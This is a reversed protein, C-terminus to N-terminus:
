PTSGGPRIDCGTLGNRAPDPLSCRQPRTCSTSGSRPVCRRAWARGQRGVGSLRGIRRGAKESQRQAANLVTPTKNADLLFVEGDREVYDFKGFDFGLREREARLSDPVTQLDEKKVTSAAKVVPDRGHLAVGYEAGALSSGCGSCTSDTWPDRPPFARRRLDTGAVGLRTGAAALRPRSLFRAPLTRTLRWSLTSECIADSAGRRGTGRRSERRLLQRRTKVM